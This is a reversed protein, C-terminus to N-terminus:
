NAWNWKHKITKLSFYTKEKFRKKKSHSLFISMIDKVTRYRYLSPSQIINMKRNPRILLKKPNSFLVNTHVHVHMVSNLLIMLPFFSFFLIRIISVFFFSLNRHIFMRSAYVNETKREFEIMINQISYLNRPYKLGTFKKIM